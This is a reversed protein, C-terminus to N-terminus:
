EELESSHVKRVVYGLVLSIDEEKFCPRGGRYSYYVSTKKGDVIEEKRKTFFLKDDVCVVVYENPFSKRDNALFLIDNEFFFPEMLDTTIKIGMFIKARIDPTIDSIDMLEFDNTMRIDGNNSVEPSMIEVARETVKGSTLMEHHFHIAWRVFHVFSEPLQRTTQLSKCTTPSITGCGVLEDVSVKFVRALRVATSLHCDTSKGYIFSKLTSEPIDALESVEALTIEKQDIYMRVNERFSYMFDDPNSILESSLARLKKTELM